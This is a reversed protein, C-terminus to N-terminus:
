WSAKVSIATEILFESNPNEWHPNEGVEAKYGKTRCLGAIKDAVRRFASITTERDSHEFMVCAYNQGARAAERINKNFDKKIRKFFMGTM